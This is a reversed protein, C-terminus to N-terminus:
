QHMKHLGCDNISVTIVRKTHSIRSIGSETIILSSIFFFYFTLIILKIIIQNNKEVDKAQISLVFTFFDRFVVSSDSSFSSYQIVM